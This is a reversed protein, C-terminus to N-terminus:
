VGGRGRRDVRAAVQRQGIGEDGAAGGSDDAGNRSRMWGGAVCDCRADLVSAQEDARGDRWEKVRPRGHLRSGVAATGGPGGGIVAADYVAEGAM